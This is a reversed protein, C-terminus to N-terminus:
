ILSTIHNNRTTEDKNLVVDKFVNIETSLGRVRLTASIILKAPFKRNYNKKKYSLYKNM